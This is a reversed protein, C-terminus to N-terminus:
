RGCEAGDGDDQAACSPVEGWVIRGRGGGASRRVGAPGQSALAALSACRHIRVSSVNVTDLIFTLHGANGPRGPAAANHM